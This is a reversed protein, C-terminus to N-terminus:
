LYKDGVNRTRIFRAPIGYNVSLDDINKNVLSGAGIVSHEGIVMNQLVNAGLSIASYKGIKVNGGVTAGPALSSFEGLVSDHDISCKTNLICHEHVVSGSNVIAGPMIVTGKGIQVDNAILASPHICSLFNFDPLNDLIKDRVTKRLWNDGIGIIGGSINNKSRLEKLDKETGVIQYGMLDHESDKKEGILGYINHLSEKEVIDIVVKTHGSSGFIVIM